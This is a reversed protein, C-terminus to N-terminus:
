LVRREYVNDINLAEIRIHTHQTKLICTAARQRAESMSGAYTYVQWDVGDSSGCVRYKTM